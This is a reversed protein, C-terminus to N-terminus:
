DEWRIEPSQGDQMSDDILKIMELTSRFNRTQNKEVWHISGQWTANQRFKVQVVFTTHSEENTMDFEMEKVDSKEREAVRFTRPAFTKQPFSLTDYLQDMAKLMAFCDAFSINKDFYDSHVWGRLGEPGCCILHLTLAAGTAGGRPQDM